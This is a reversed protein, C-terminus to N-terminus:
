VGYLANLQTRILQLARRRVREKVVRSDTESYQFPLVPESFCLVPQTNM